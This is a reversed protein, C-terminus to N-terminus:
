VLNNLYEISFKVFIGLYVPLKVFNECIVFTPFFHFDRVNELVLLINKCVFKNEDFEKNVRIKTIRFINEGFKKEM